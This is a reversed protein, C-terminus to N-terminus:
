LIKLYGGVIEDVLAGDGAAEVYDPLKQLQERLQESDVNKRKWWRFQVEEMVVATSAIPEQTYLSMRKALALSIALYYLDRNEILTQFAFTAQVVFSQASWENRQISRLREAVARRRMDNFAEIRQEDTLLVDRMCLYFYSAANAKIEDLNPMNISLNHLVPQAKEFFESGPIMRGEQDEKASTHARLLRGSTEDELEHAGQTAAGLKALESAPAVGAPLAGGLFTVFLYCPRM